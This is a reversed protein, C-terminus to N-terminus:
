GEPPEDDSEAHLRAVARILYFAIVEPDAPRRVASTSLAGGGRVLDLELVADGRRFTLFRGRVEGNGVRLVTSGREILEDACIRAQAGWRQEAAHVAADYRARSLEARQRMSAVEAPGPARCAADPIAAHRRRGPRPATRRERLYREAPDILGILWSM